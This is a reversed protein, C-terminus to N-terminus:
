RRTIGPSLIGTHAYANRGHDIHSSCDDWAVNMSHSVARFLRRMLAARSRCSMFLANARRVGVSASCTRDSRSTRFSM